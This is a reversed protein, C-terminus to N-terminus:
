LIPLPAGTTTAPCRLDGLGADPLWLDPLYLTTRDPPRCPAAAPLPPCSLAPAQFPASTQPSPTTLAELRPVLAAKAALRAARDKEAQRVARPADQRQAEKHRAAELLAKLREAEGPHVFEGTSPFPLRRAHSVMWGPGLRAGSLL